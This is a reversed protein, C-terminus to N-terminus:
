LLLLLPVDATPLRYWLVPSSFDLRSSETRAKTFKLTNFISNSHITAVLTLAWYIRNGIWVGHICDRVVLFVSVRSM